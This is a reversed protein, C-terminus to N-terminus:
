WGTAMFDGAAADAVSHTEDATTLMGQAKPPVAFVPTVGRHLVENTVSGLAFRKLGGRGHTSLVILDASTTEAARIIEDAPRGARVEWGVRLGRDRLAKATADLYARAEAQLQDEVEQIQASALM